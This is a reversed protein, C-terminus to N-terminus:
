QRRKEILENSLSQGEPIYRRVIEQARKVVQELTEPTPKTNTQSM